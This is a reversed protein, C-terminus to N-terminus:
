AVFNHRLTTITFHMCSTMCAHRLDFSTMCVQRLGFSTMCVHRLGFPTMCFHRLGFSTMCVHRLGFLTMCVHRLGFSTVCVHRLDFSTMCVHRLGFSTMCIHRSLIHSTTRVTPYSSTQMFSSNHGVKHTHYSLRNTHLTALLSKTADQVSRPTPLTLLYSAM